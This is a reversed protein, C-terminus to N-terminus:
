WFQKFPEALSMAFCYMHGAEAQCVFFLLPINGDNSYVQYGEIVMPTKKGTNTTDAM